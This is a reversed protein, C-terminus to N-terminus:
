PKDKITQEGGWGDQGRLPVVGTTIRSLSRAYVEFHSFLKTASPKSKIQENDNNENYSVYTNNM